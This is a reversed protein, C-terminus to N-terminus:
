LSNNLNVGNIILAKNVNFGAFTGAGVSITNGASAQNIAYQITLCPTGQCNGTDAGTTNVSLQGFSNISFIISSLVYFIILYYSLLLNKM